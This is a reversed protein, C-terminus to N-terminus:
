IISQVTLVPLMEWVPLMKCVPLMKEFLIKNFITIWLYWPIYFHSLSSHNYLMNMNLLNSVQYSCEKFASRNVFYHTEDHWEHAQVVIKNISNFASWAILILVLWPLTLLNFLLLENERFDTKNDQKFARAFQSFSM